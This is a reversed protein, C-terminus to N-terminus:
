NRRARCHLHPRKLRSRYPVLFVVSIDASRGAVDSPLGTIERVQRRPALRRNRKRRRAARTRKSLHAVAGSVRGSGATKRVWGGAVNVSQGAAASPSTSPTARRNGLGDDVPRDAMASERYGEGGATKRRKPRAVAQQTLRDIPDQRRRPVIDPALRRDGGGGKAGRDAIWSQDRRYFTCVRAFDLTEISVRSNRSL